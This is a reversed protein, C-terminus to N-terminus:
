LLYRDLVKKNEPYAECVIPNAPHLYAFEQVEWRAEFDEEFFKVDRLLEQGLFYYVSGEKVLLETGQMVIGTEEYVEREVAAKPTEWEWREGAPLAWRGVNPPCNRKIVAVNGADNLVIGVVTEPQKLIQNIMGTHYCMEAPSDRLLDPASLSIDSYSRQLFRPIFFYGLEISQPM